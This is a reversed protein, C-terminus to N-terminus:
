DVEQLLICTSCSDINASQLERLALNLNIIIVFGMKVLFCCLDDFEDMCTLVRIALQLIMLENLTCYQFRILTDSM